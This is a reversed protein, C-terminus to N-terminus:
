PASARAPRRPPGGAQRASTGNGDSGRDAVAAAADVAGNTAAPPASRPRTGNGGATGGHRRAPAAPFAERLKRVVPAEITSSPSKVFEGLEKLKGLVDKSSASSKRSRQVRAKGAM